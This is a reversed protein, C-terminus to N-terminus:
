PATPLVTARTPLSLFIGARVIAATFNAVLLGIAVGLPGYARVLWLGLTFMIALTALNLLFDLDAREVAFLARSFSFGVATVILNLALITIVRSNGAYRNGYLLAILRDGWLILLLTLVSFPVALWASTRLVMRRLADQGHAAFEHAIKPGLFNQIGLLAPNSASVVGMCAAFVGAAATGHYFALLWPYLNLGCTAVLGSAFVWRAFNWNRKLDAVAESFKLQYLRRNLWLWCLVAIGCLSGVFWYARSATVVHFHALLLLGGVQCVGIVLDFAFVTKLKLLAFCIRRVFERLMLLSGVAALAWLIREIGVALTALVGFVLQHILTSGTYLAHSEDKLRPAFVMYPTAILATQLDTLLLVLTFGLTYLGFEEKSSARAIIVGTAFNTISAVAQDALSLFGQHFVKGPSLLFSFPRGRRPTDPAMVAMAKPSASADMVTDSFILL